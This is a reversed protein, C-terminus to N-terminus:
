LLVFVKIESTPSVIAIIIEPFILGSKRENSRYIQLHRCIEGLM